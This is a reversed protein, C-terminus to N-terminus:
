LLAVIICAKSCQHGELCEFEMGVTVFTSSRNCCVRASICWLVMISVCVMCM